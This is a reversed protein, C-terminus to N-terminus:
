TVVAGHSQDPHEQPNQSLAFDFRCTYAYKDTDTAKHLETVLSPKVAGVVDHDLWPDSAFYV